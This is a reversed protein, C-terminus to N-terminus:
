SINNGTFVEIPVAAATAGKDIRYVGPGYICVGTNTATIQQVTTDVYFDHWSGSGDKIQLTAVEAGAIGPAIFHVPLLDAGAILESSQTASTTASLLTKPM